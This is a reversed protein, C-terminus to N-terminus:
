DRIKLKVYNFLFDHQAEWYGETKKGGVNLNHNAGEFVQYIFDCKDDAILKDLIATSEPVPISKDQEGFLWLGPMTMKNLYPVPDFYYPGREAVRRSIEESTLSSNKGDHTLRSYTIEEGVTVTPGSQLITFRVEKSLTAVIPVIWGAQSGGILGIQESDIEERSKLYEIGAVLDKSLLTLNKLSTNGGASDLYIGESKGAGRKDHSLFAFGLPAYHRAFFSGETRLSPGHGHVYVMAPHPGPKDPIWISGRMTAGESTYEIDSVTYEYGGLDVRNKDTEAYVFGAILLIASVLKVASCGRRVFNKM